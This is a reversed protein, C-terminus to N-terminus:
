STAEQNVMCIAKFGGARFTVAIRGTRGDYGVRDIVARILRSQEATNLANWVPEFAELARHLESEEVEAPTGADHEARLEAVRTEGARIQEQLDAMRDTRTGNGPAAVVKALERELRGLNKGSLKLETELEEIRSQSQEHVKRATEAAVRPDSGLHRIRAVIADEIEQAAVSKTPCADWGRQQATVCVYYRYRRRRKVTYTHVMGTGCAECYLLGRLIAGYKNRVERGGNLSNGRLQEDVQQWAALDVIPPHEGPYLTGKHNVRGTYIANTLLRYLSNKTFPQGTHERGEKTIWRKTTWGRRNLERVVPILSRQELYLNFIAPVQKAEDPNVVLRGGRPDVDYGLVPIGGVWKGKRRAASMKDRTREAIMEREFQAFSLLINLTLRGLSATTNFQQTVSVFSIGRKEFTEMIRAFDLLSRSLRDVKYVVVCDVRDAAIDALLRQLAPREMNAGTFGGDNYSDPILIWGEHRQSAIYAEGAERQADLSNFEQSLGEDTSKRTYIACRVIRNSAM